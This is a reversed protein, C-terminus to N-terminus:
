FNSIPSTQVTNIGNKNVITQMICTSAFASSALSSDGKKMGAFLNNVVAKVSDEVSKQAMLKQSFFACILALVFVRKM